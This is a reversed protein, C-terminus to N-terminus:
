SKQAKALRAADIVAAVEPDRAKVLAPIALSLAAVRADNGAEKELKVAAKILRLATELNRQARTM